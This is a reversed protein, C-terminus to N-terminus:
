ALIAKRAALSKGYVESYPYPSALLTCAEEGWNNKRSSTRQEKSAQNYKLGELYICIPHRKTNILELCNEVNRTSQYHLLCSFLQLKSLIAQDTFFNASTRMRKKDLANSPSFLSAQTREREGGRGKEGYGFGM